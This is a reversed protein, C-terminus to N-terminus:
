DEWPLSPISEHDHLFPSSLGAAMVRPGMTPMQQMRGVLTMKRRMRRKRRKQRIMRPMPTNGWWQMRLQHTLQRTLLLMRLVM